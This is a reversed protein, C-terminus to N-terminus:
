GHSTPSGTLYQEWPLDEAASDLEYAERIGLCLQRLKQQLVTHTFLEESGEMMAYEFIRARDEKPFSLAYRDIFARSTGETYQAADTRQANATHDYQFGAPNLDEWTDYASCVSMVRSEIVHFMSHHFPQALEPEAIVLICANGDKDWYQLGPLPSGDQSVSRVLCIRLTENDTLAASETLFGEPYQALAEDLTELCVRLLPAHFEPETIYGAPPDQDDPLRILIEVGYTEGIEQAMTECQTLAATDPSDATYPTDLYITEDQIATEDLKWRLLTYASDEPSYGLLWLADDGAACIDIPGSKGPLTLSATRLGTILDYYDLTSDTALVVGNQETLITAITSYDGARLALTQSSSQGTLMQYYAGEARIAFYSTGWTTLQIVQTTEFVNQGNHIDIYITQGDSTRCAIITDDAYLGLLHLSSQAKLLKDLGTELDIARLADATCYYLTKRDSSMAPIGQIDAPLSIRNVEKLGADLFVAESTSTDFYTLGKSSIQVAADTPTVRCNLQIQATVSLGAGTLKTLKTQETGSFVLIDTGMPTVAYCDEMGLPYISLCIGDQLELMRPAAQVAASAETAPPQTPSTTPESEAPAAACGCLLLVALILPILHKM